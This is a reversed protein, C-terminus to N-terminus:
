NSAVLGSRGAVSMWLRASNPETKSSLQVCWDPQSRTDFQGVEEGNSLMDVEVVFASSQPDVKLIQIGGHAILAMTALVSSEHRM